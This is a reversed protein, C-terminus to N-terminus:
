HCTFYLREILLDFELVTYIIPPTQTNDVTRPYHDNCDFPQLGLDRLTRTDLIDPDSRHLLHESLVRNVRRVM